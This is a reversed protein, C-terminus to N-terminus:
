LPPVHSWVGVWIGQWATTSKPAPLPMKPIPAKSRPAGLAMKTSTGLSCFLSPSLQSLELSRIGWSLCLSESTMLRVATFLKRSWKRSLQERVITPDQRFGVLTELLVIWACNLPVGHVGVDSFNRASTPVRVSTFKTAWGLAAVAPTM